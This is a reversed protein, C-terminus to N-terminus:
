AEMHTYHTFRRLGPPRYVAVASEFTAPSGADDFKLRGDVFRVEDSKGVVWRQWWKAGARNPVLCVVTAGRLSWTFALEMWRPIGRGYPPNMWCIAPYGSENLWDSRFADDEISFYRSHKANKKNACVDLEFGFEEDLKRYFEVPTAWDDRESSTQVRASHRELPM